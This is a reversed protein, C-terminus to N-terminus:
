TYNKVAFFDMFTLDNLVFAQCRRPIKYLVKGLTDRKVKMLFFNLYYFLVLCHSFLYCFPSEFYKQYLACTGEAIVCQKKLVPCM